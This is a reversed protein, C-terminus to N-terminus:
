ELYLDKLQNLEKETLKLGDIFYNHYTKYEEKIGNLASQLWSEHVGALLAISRLVVEDTVGEDRLLKTRAIQKEKTCNNTELYDEFVTEEPVDLALLFLAVGLGSRDKGDRCHCWSSGEETNLLLHFFDSYAKLGAKDLAFLRYPTQMGKIADGHEDITFLYDLTGNLAPDSTIIKEHAKKKLGDKLDSQVPFCYRKAGRIEKDPMQDIEVQSRFDVINKIHYDDIIKEIDRETVRDLSDTRIVRKAKIKRGEKNILGGLDRTNITGELVIKRDSM